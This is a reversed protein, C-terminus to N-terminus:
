QPEKRRKGRYIRLKNYLTHLSIGLIGAARRRNGHTHQLILRIYAEEVDKM